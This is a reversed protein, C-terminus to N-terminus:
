AKALLDRVVRNVSVGKLRARERVREAMAPKVMYTVAVMKEGPPLPKRGAKSPAKKMRGKNGGKPKHPLASKASKTKAPEGKTPPRNRIM